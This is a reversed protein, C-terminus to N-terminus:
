TAIRIHNSFIWGRGKKWAEVRYIGPQLDTYQLADANTSLIEKGNHILKIQARSPLRVTLSADDPSSLNGGSIVKEKGRQAYFEFEDARGWRMNSFFLRCDRLADYLQTRATQFDPSMKEHMLIHSRLCRFHVKYPFIEVTLPGVKIPFAHADVGALGVVKRRLNLEDWKKLIRDTPGLMSKRPSFSMVLKNFRTLKEMWESMQNWLEIGVFGDVSWNTWPYAPHDELATRIEDPHAIIGLAGDSAGAAVYESASMDPPYVGPSEFLLYHHHDAPDNHEYGVTVLTGGYYGERDCDRNSLTMHDCFMIFDLGADRGIGVVEELTKTGDSETTHVHVAGSYVYWDNVKRSM